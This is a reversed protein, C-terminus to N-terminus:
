YDSHAQIVKDLRDVGMHFSVLIDRPFVHLFKGLHTSAPQPSESTNLRKAHPEDQKSSPTLEHKGSCDKEPTSTLPVCGLDM